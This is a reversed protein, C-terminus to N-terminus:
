PKPNVENILLPVFLVLFWKLKSVGFIFAIFSRTYEKDQTCVNCRLKYEPLNALLVRREQGKYAVQSSQKFKSPKDIATVQASALEGAEFAAVRNSLFLEIESYLPLVM